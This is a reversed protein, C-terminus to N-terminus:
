STTGLTLELKKRRPELKKSLESGDDTVTGRNQVPKTPKKNTESDKKSPEPDQVPKIDSIQEDAIEDLM